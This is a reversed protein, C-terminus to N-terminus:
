DPGAADSSAADTTLHAIVLAAMVVATVSAAIRLPAAIAPSIGASAWGLPSAAVAVLASAASSWLLTSLAGNMVGPARTARAAIATTVVMWASVALIAGGATAGEVDESTYICAAAISEGLLACGVVARRFRERRKTPWGPTVADRARPAKARKATGEARAAESNARIAQSEAKAAATEARADRVERELAEIRARRAEDEDRHM